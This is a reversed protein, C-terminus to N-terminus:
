IDAVNRNVWKCTWKKVYVGPHSEAWKAIVPQSGMMCSMPTLHEDVFTLEYRRCDNASYLVCGIISLTLM